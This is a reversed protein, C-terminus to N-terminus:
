RLGNSGTGIRIDGAVQLKDSAGTGIGVNGNTEVLIRALNGTALQWRGNDLVHQFYGMNAATNFLDFRAAGQEDFDGSGSVILKATPATTGIGVNVSLNQKRKYVHVRYKVIQAGLRAKLGYQM